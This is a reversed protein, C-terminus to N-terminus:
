KDYPQPHQNVAYPRSSLTILQRTSVRRVFDQRAIYLRYATYLALSGSLGILLLTPTLPGLVPSLVGILTPGSVSGAAWIFLLYTSLAVSSEPKREFAHAVCISQLPFSLGGLIVLLLGMLSLLQYNLLFGSNWGHFPDAILVILIIATILSSSGLILWRRDMRDALSGFPWQFLLRGVYLMAIMLATTSGGVGAKSLSFPVITLLSTVIAGSCFAGLVAVSSQAWIEKFKIRKTKYTRPPVSRTMCLLVVAVLLFASLLELMEIRTEAFHAVFIQSVIAMAGIAISNVSLVRGRVEDSVTENLWADATAFLVAFAAGMFFRLATWLFISDTNKFMLILLATLGAAGAFARIHGIRNIMSVGRMCGALFGLSYAAAVLGADTTSGGINAIKLPLSTLLASSALQAIASAMIIALLSILSAKVMRCYVLARSAM